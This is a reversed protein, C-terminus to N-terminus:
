GVGIRTRIQLITRYALHAGLRHGKVDFNKSVVGYLNEFFNNTTLRKSIKLSKLNGIDDWGIAVAPWWKGEKLPRVKVNIHWDENYYGLPEDSNHNRHDRVLTGTYSVELWPFAAIGITYAMTNFPTGDNYYSMDPLFRKDLYTIGGRFTGALVMEASPVHLLGTM